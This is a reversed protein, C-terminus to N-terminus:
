YQTQFIRATGAIITMLASAITINSPTDYKADFSKEEDWDNVFNSGDSSAARTACWKRGCRSLSSCATTLLGDGSDEGEILSGRESTGSHGRQGGGSGGVSHGAGGMASVTTAATGAVM